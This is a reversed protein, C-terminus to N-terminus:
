QIATILGEVYQIKKKTDKPHFYLNKSYPHKPPNDYILQVIYEKETYTCYRYYWMAIVLSEISNYKKIVFSSEGKLQSIVENLLKKIRNSAIM